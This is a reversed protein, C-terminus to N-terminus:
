GDAALIKADEHALYGLEDWLLVEETLGAHTTRGPHITPTEYYAIGM